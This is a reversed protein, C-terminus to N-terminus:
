GGRGQAKAGWEQVLSPKDMLRKARPNSTPDCQLVISRTFFSTTM